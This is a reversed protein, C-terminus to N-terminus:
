IIYGSSINDVKNHTAGKVEARFNHSRQSFNGNSCNVDGGSRIPHSLSITTLEGFYGRTNYLSNGKLFSKMERNIFGWQSWHHKKREGSQIFSYLITPIKEKFKLGRRGICLAACEHVSRGYKKCYKYAASISTFAPNVVILKVGKRLCKSYLLAKFKIYPM